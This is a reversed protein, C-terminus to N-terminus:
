SRTSLHGHLLADLPGLQRRLRKPEHTRVQFIGPSTPSSDMGTSAPWDWKVAGNELVKVKQDKISVIIRKNEVPPLPVFVDPSPITLKQGVQLMDGLGPNAKQIWPYPMGLKVGISSLTDGTGVAYQQEGHYVRLHVEPGNETVMKMVAPLAEDMKVFRTAGLTAQQQSQLYAQAKDQEVTWKLYSSDEPNLHLNLWGGIVQPTIQWTFKEDRLPDYLYVPHTSSLLQNAQAM